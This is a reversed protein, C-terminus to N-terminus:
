NKQVEIECNCYAWLLERGQLFTTIVFRYNNSLNVYVLTSPSVFILLRIFTIWQSIYFSVLSIWKLNWRRPQIPLGIAHSTFWPNVASSSVLLSMVSVKKQNGNTQEEKKRSRRWHFHSQSLPLSGPGPLPVHKCLRSPLRTSSDSRVKSFVQSHSSVSGLIGTVSFTTDLRVARQSHHCVKINGLPLFLTYAKSM